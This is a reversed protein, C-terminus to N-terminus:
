LLDLGLIGHSWPLMHGCSTTGVVAIETQIHPDHVKAAEASGPVTEGPHVLAEAKVETKAEAARPLPAPAAIPARVPAQPPVAPFREQLVPELRKPDM